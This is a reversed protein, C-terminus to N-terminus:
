TEHKGGRKASRTDGEVKWSIEEDITFQPPIRSLVKDTAQQESDAEVIDSFYGEIRVEYRDLKDGIPTPEEAKHGRAPVRM